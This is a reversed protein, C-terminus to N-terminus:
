LSYAVQMMMPVGLVATKKVFAWQNGHEAHNRALILHM